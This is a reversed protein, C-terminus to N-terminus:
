EWQVHVPRAAYDTVRDRLADGVEPVVEFTQRVWQRSLVQLSGDANQQIADGVAHVTFSASRTTILEVLNRFLEERGRDNLKAIDVGTLSGGNPPNSAFFSITSLEGRELMPGNKELFELVSAVLEDIDSETLERNAVQPDSAPDAAFAQRRLAARFAVGGDRLVGNINIRGPWTAPATPSLSVYSSFLDVLRWASLQWTPSFREGNALEDPRGVALTRGGGPMGAAGPLASDRAPDYINGLEGITVMADDAYIAPAAAATGDLPKAYDPWTEPDALPSGAIGMSIPGPTRVPAFPLLSSRTDIKPVDFAIPEDLSRPDGTFGEEGGRLAAAAFYHMEPESVHGGTFDFPSGGTTDEGADQRDNEDGEGKEGVERENGPGDGSPAESMPLFAHSGYAGDESGWLVETEFDSDGSRGLFRLGPGFELMESTFGSFERADSPSPSRVITSEGEEALVAPEPDTTVVIAKGAPFVIGGLDVEFDPPVLQAGAGASWSPRNRVQLFAGSPATFEKTSVNTFEFYYDMTVTYNAGEATVEWETERGRWGFETLLPNAEKGVALPLSDGGWVTEPRTSPAITGDTQVITPQRDEDIYDRINAALKLLYRDADEPKGGGSKSLFRSGFRPIGNRITDAIDKLQQLIAEPDTPREEPPVTRTILYNLNARRAGTSSLDNSLSFATGYFKLAEDYVSPSLLPSARNLFRPDFLPLNRRYAIIEANIQDSLDETGLPHFNILPLAGLDLQTAPQLPNPTGGRGFGGGDQTNGARRLDLKSTEDEVWFAYRAVVRNSVPDAPELPNELIEIWPALATSRPPLTGDPGELVPSGMRNGSNMDVMANAPVDDPWESLNPTSVLITEDERGTTLDVRRIIPITLSIPNSKPDVTVSRYGVAHYPNEQLALLVRATGSAIGGSAALEAREMDSYVKATRREIRVTAMFGIIMVTLLTLVILTAPLAFGCVFRSAVPSRM